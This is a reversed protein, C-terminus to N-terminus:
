LVFRLWWQEKKSDKKLIKSFWKFKSNGKKFSCNKMEIIYEDM